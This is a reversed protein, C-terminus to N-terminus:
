IAGLMSMQRRAEYLVLTAASAVNLSDAIGYMPIKVLIDANDIWFKSLGLQETGVLIAVNKSLDSQTYLVDSHPTTAVISLRHSKLFHFVESQTSEIVPVNFLTGISARVVNPNFIDTKKDCIIVAHAGVADSSRLISGLNGPKEISECVVILPNEPLKLDQLTLHRTPAIALLGDPRDRYSVKQFLDEELEFIVNEDFQALLKEENNGLFLKPCIFLASMPFRAQKARLIERYGEILFQKESERHRKDKLKIIQKFKPNHRSSIKNM